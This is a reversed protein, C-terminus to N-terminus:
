TASSINENEALRGLRVGLLIDRHFLPVTHSCPLKAGSLANVIRRGSIRCHQRGLGAVFGMSGDASLQAGQHKNRFAVGPLDASYDPKLEIAKQSLINPKPPSNEGLRRWKWFGCGIRQTQTRQALELCEAVYRLYEEEHKWERVVVRIDFSIHALRNETGAYDRHHKLLIRNWNWANTHGSRFM